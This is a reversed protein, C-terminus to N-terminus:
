EGEKIKVTQEKGENLYQKGMKLLRIKNQFDIDSIEGKAYREELIEM